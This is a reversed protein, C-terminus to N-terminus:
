IRLLAPTKEHAYEIWCRCHPHAPPGEPFFRSWTSRSQRHLPRCIPCVKSDEETYWTDDESQGVTQQITIEGGRVIVDSTTTVAIKEVRDSGFVSEAATEVADPAVSALRDISNKVVESALQQAKQQAWQKGIEQAQSIANQKTPEQSIWPLLPKSHSRISAAVILLIIAAAQEDIEKQVKQWFTIPVRRPDPPSGALRKWEAFQERSLSNLKAAFDREFKPRETLDM